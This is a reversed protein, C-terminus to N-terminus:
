EDAGGGYEDSNRWPVGRGSALEMGHPLFAPPDERDGDLWRALERVDDAADAYADALQDSLIASEESAATRAGKRRETSKDHLHRALSV